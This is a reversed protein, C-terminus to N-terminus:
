EKEIVVCLGLPYADERPTKDYETYYDGEQQAFIVRASCNQYIGPRIEILVPARWDTRNLMTRMDRTTPDKM